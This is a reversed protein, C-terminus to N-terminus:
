TLLALPAKTKSLYVYRACICHPCTDLHKRAKIRLTVILGRSCHICQMIRAWGKVTLGGEKIVRRISM